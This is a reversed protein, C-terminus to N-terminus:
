ETVITPICVVLKNWHDESKISDGRRKVHSKTLGDDSSNPKIMGTIAIEVNIAVGSAILYRNFLSSL